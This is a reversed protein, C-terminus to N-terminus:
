PRLTGSDLLGSLWHMVNLAFQRNDIGSRNMGFPRRDPGILQASLMAAEGLVVVRGLGVRCVVAQSRGAASTEPRAGAADAPLRDIATPALDLLSASGDPGRLSQGTFSMVITLGEDASRGRTIPHDALRGSARTYIIFGPNNSEADHNAPDATHGQSMHVGFRRALGAAASGAPAHDAILLLSGGERVWAEVATNEDETFAPDGPAAAGRANAIVLIRHGALTERTFPSTNASVRYGDSTVLDVFPKYRGGTTHFNRHAEDLLVRPGDGAFAPTAVRADFNPDPVQQALAPSAAVVLLAAAAALGFHGKPVRCPIRLSLADRGAGTM